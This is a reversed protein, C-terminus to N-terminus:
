RSNGLGNFWHFQVSRFDICRLRVIATPWTPRARNIRSSSSLAERPAIMFSSRRSERKMVWPLGAESSLTQRAQVAPVWTTRRTPIQRTKLGRPEVVRQPAFRDVARRVPALRLNAACSPTGKMVTCRIQRLCSMRGCRRSVWMHHGVIGVKLGLRGIHDARYRFGGNCAATNQTSSFVAM